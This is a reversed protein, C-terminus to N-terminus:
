SAVPVDRLPGRRVTIGAGDLHALLPMLHRRSVPLVERFDAPSLDSRGGFTSVVAAEADALAEADLLLGEDVTRLVGESELRRLLEPLDARKRLAEPLEDVFPAALGAGRYAAVLEESAGRQDDTLSPRYGPRRAGGEALDLRGEARLREVVADGLAAPSWSPLAARLRALPVAARLPMERHGEALAGFVLEGARRVIGAGFVTGRAVVAGEGVIEEV